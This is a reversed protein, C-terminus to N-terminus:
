YDFLERAIPLIRHDVEKDQGLSHKVARRGMWSKSGKRGEEQWAERTSTKNPASYEITM